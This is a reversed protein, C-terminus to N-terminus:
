NVTFVAIIYARCFFVVVSFVDTRLFGAAMIGAGIKRYLFQKLHSRFLGEGAGDIRKGGFLEIFREMGKFQFLIIKHIHANVKGHATYSRM